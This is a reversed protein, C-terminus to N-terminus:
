DQETILCDGNGTTGFAPSCGAETYTCGSNVIVKSAGTISALPADGLDCGQFMVSNVSSPAKFVFGTSSNNTVFTMAQCHVNSTSKEAQIFDRSTYTGEVLECSTSGLLRVVERNSTFDCNKIYVNANRAEVIRHGTTTMECNEIKVNSQSIDVVKDRNRDTAQYNVIRGNCRSFSLVGGGACRDIINTFRFTSEHISVYNNNSAPFDIESNSWDFNCGEGQFVIGCQSMYCGKVIVDTQYTKFVLRGSSQTGVYTFICNDTIITSGVIAEGIYSNHVFGQGYNHIACNKFQLSSGSYVNRIATFQNTEITQRFYINEFEVNVSGYSQFLNEGSQIIAPYFAELIDDSEEKSALKFEDTGPMNETDVAPGRFVITNLTNPMSIRGIYTGPALNVIVKTGGDAYLHAARQYGIGIKVPSDATLGTNNDSDGDPSVYINIERSQHTLKTLGSKWTEESRVYDFGTNPAEEVDGSGGGSNDSVYQELYDKTVLTTEGDDAETSASTIKGTFEATGEPKLSINITEDNILQTGIKVEGDGMVKFRSSNSGGHHLVEIATKGDDHPRIHLTGKTPSLELGVNNQIGGDIKEGVIFTSAISQDDTVTKSVFDDGNFDSDSGDAGRLDGTTFGLGDDSTFTVTGDAENYSGGTFGLGNAGDSGNTGDAGRLDGTDFELGDTSTFSVIGTDESYSGGTWGQGDAGAAGETGRLDGTDSELGDDSTFSVVGTDESYSGGTWGKGDAGAAGEAGRIDETDFELGDDSTFSVIGTNEDYSGGTWGSGDAGNIGNTGDTGRIDSTTFLLGM